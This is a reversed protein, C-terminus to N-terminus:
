AGTLNCGIALLNFYGTKTGSKGSFARLTITDGTTVRMVAVANAGYELASNSAYNNMSYAYTDSNKLVKATTQGHSSQTNTACSVSAIVVGYNDATYTKEMAASTSTTTDTAYYEQISTLNILQAMLRGGVLVDYKFDNTGLSSTFTDAQPTRGGISMGFQGDLGARFRVPTYSSQISLSLTSTSGLKDTLEFAASYASTTSLGGVIQPFTTYDTGNFTVKHVVASNTGVQAIEWTMNLYGYTGENDENGGSDCRYVQATIVPMSYPNITTASLAKTGTLGYADTVIVSYVFSGSPEAETMDLTATTNSTTVVGMLESGRYFAYSALAGDGQTATAVLRLITFGSVYAGVSSYGTGIDSITLSGVVPPNVAITDLTISGSLSCTGASTGSLNLTCSVSATKTGDANHPIVSTSTRWVYDTNIPTNRISFDVTGNSASGNVNQSWAANSKYTTTATTSRRMVWKFKVTSSRTEPNQSTIEWRVLFTLNANETTGTIVGSSAM